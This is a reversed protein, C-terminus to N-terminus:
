RGPWIYIELRRSIQAAFGGAARERLFKKKKDRKKAGPEKEGACSKLETEM